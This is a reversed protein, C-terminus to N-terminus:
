QSDSTYGEIRRIEYIDIEINVEITQLIKNVRGKIGMENEKEM